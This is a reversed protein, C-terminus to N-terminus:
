EAVRFVKKTKMEYRFILLRLYGVGIFNLVFFNFSFLTMRNPTMIELFPSLQSFWSRDDDRVRKVICLYIQETRIFVTYNSINRIAYM